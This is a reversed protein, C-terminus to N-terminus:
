VGPGSRLELCALARVLRLDLFRDATGGRPRAREPGGRSPRTVPACIARGGARHFATVLYLCPRTITRLELAHTPAEQRLWLGGTVSWVPWVGGRHVQVRFVAGRPNVRMVFRVVRDPESSPLRRSPKGSTCTRVAPAAAFEAKCDPIMPNRGAVGRELFEDVGPRFLVLDLDLEIEEGRDALLDVDRHRRLGLRFGAMVDIGEIHPRHVFEGVRQHRDVVDHLRYIRCPRAHRHIGRRSCRNTARQARPRPNPEASAM